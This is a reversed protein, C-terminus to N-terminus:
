ARQGFDVSGGSGVDIFVMSRVERRGVVRQPAVDRRRLGTGFKKKARGRVDAAVIPDVADGFDPGQVFLAQGAESTM